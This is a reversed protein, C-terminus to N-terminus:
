HTATGSGGQHTQQYSVTLALVSSSRRVMPGTVVTGNHRFPDGPAFM